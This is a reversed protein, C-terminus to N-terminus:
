AARPFLILVLCFTLLTGPMYSTNKKGGGKWIYQASFFIVEVDPISQSLSVMYTFLTVGFQKGSHNILTRKAEGHKGANPMTLRILRFPEFHFKM